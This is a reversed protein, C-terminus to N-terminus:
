KSCVLCFSPVHAFFHFLNTAVIVDCCTLFHTVYSISQFLHLLFYDIFQKIYNILGTRLRM